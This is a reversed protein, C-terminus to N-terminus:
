CFFLFGLALVEFVKVGSLVTFTVNEKDDKLVTVDHLGFDQNLKSIYSINNCGDGVIYSIKNHETHTEKGDEVTKVKSM